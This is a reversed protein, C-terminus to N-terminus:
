PRWDLMLSAYDNEVAQSLAVSTLATRDKVKLWASTAHYKRPSTATEGPETIWYLIEFATQEKNPMERVIVHATFTKRGEGCNVEYDPLDRIQSYICSLMGDGENPVYQFQMFPKAHAAPTLLAALLLLLTM